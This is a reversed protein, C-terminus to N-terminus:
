SQIEKLVLSGYSPPGTVTSPYLVVGGSNSSAQAKYSTSATTNPFDIGSITVPGVFPAGSNNQLLVGVGVATSGRAPRVMLGQSATNHQGTGNIEYEISNAASTPTISDIITTDLFTPSTCTASCTFPTTTEFKRRAVVEGPLKVGVGYSQVRVLNTTTWTGATLGSAGWEIYGIVRYAKSSVATGTVFVGASNGPTTSSALNDDSISVQSTPTTALIAGLRFTGADNFGVIWLRFATASTVGMTNGSALTLTTAATVALSSYTGTTATANRFNVVAPSGASPTSGTADNLTITLAGAAASVSLSANQIASLDTIIAGAATNVSAVSGASALAGVTTKKMGFSAASDEIVVIDGSVPSAKLTLSSATFGTENALSTTPNGSYSNAAVQALNARTIGNTASQFAYAGAGTRTLFGTSAFGSINDVCTGSAVACNTGGNAVPLTGSVHTTLGVKGWSSVVGAGGSILVNGTAVAALRALTNTANAQLLDGIVFVSQGTGGQAATATGSIDTFAPQSSTPVGSTSISNLWQSAVSTKSQVGGLTSASPNPLDAGVLARFTPNAAGGSTPGSFVTNATQTGFAPGAIAQFTPDSSAGNSVLSQGAVGPAAFKFGTGSGRGIPVSHDPTQWQASVPNCAIFFAAFAVAFSRLIKM